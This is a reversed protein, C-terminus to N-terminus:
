DAEAAPAEVKAAKGTLRLMVGRLSYDMRM